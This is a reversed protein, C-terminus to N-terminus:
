FLLTRYVFEIQKCISPEMMTIYLSEMVDLHFKTRAQAIPKFCQVNYGLLCSDSNLLHQCISSRQAANKVKDMKDFMRADKSRVHEIYEEVCKPVHDGIRKRLTQTTKGVYKGNCQCTFLYIVKQSSLTPLRDKIMNPFMPKSSFVINTAVTPFCEEVCSKIMSEFRYSAEGIFPLKLFVRRKNPGFHVPMGVSSMVKCILYEPYGNDLFISKIRALEPELREPSCIQHARYTLTRILATKRRLHCFSEFRVYSGTFTPKRYVSTIFKMRDLDKEVLVDLFPLSGNKEHETTFELSPHLANLCNLFSQHDAADNLIVFTDDVYRFYTAPRVCSTFLREEHYGVFINALTPGLPSGMAIGDSQRYVEGNFLFEVSTTAMKMLERFNTEDLKSTNQGDKFLANSCIDIVEDVPVCTFLSRIDFSCLVESSNLARERMYAAFSFSDPICNTSYKELVPELVKALWQAIKQQPSNCMSLIPRVPCEKKHIKPLGYMRPMQSGTPRIAEHEAKTIQPPKAKSLKVLKKRIKSETSQTNDNSEFPGLLQFKSTDNLIVKMKDVYDQADLIVVGNGKDPKTIVIRDNRRLSQLINFCFKKALLDAKDISSTSYGHALQGLRSKCRSVQQKAVPKEVSRQHKLLQDTFMEFEVLIDETKISKPPLYFNLGHSLVFTEDDNLVYSSLNTICKVSDINRNGYRKVALHNVTKMYRKQRMVRLRSNVDLMYKNLHIFDMITLQEFVFKNVECFAKKLGHQVRSNKKMEQNLLTRESNPGPKLKSKNVAAVIFRPAVKEVICKRFYENSLTLSFIKRRTTVLLNCKSIVLGSYRSKLEKFPNSSMAFNLVKQLRRVTTFVLSKFSGPLIWEM